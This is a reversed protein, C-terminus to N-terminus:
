CCPNLLSAPLRADRELIKFYGFQTVGISPASNDGRAVASKKVDDPILPRLRDVNVTLRYFKNRLHHFYRMGVKGFYEPHYKDSLIRHHHMGGTNGRGGPHKRNKKFCTTMAAVTTGRAKDQM